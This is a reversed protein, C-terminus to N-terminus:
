YPRKRIHLRYLIPSLTAELVFFVFVVLVCDFESLAFAQQLMLVPFLSEPVTDLGRFCSSEAYGLRRKIFSSFLDGLMTVISFIVGQKVSLGLWPAALAGVLVASLLGRWTKSSGFVPRQDPLRYGFDLSWDAKNKLLNRSIVPAGNVCILLV